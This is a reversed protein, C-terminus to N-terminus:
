LPPKKSKNKFWMLAIITKADTIKGTELAKLTEPPSFEIVEIDEHESGLGGGSSIRDANVVEAYYLFIRESSGGPSTYFTFLPIVEDVRYGTEELVERRVAEEPDEDKGLIGAVIEVIWGGGKEYTPYRFQNVLIIRRAERNFILVAVADGREFNLRRVSESMQGDFKEYRVIAEDVKFFDDFVRRKKEVRVRKM